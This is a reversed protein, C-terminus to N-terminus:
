PSVRYPAPTRPLTASGLRASQSGVADRQERLHGLETEGPVDRVQGLLSDPFPELEPELADARRM